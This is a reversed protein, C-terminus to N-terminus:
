SYIVIILLLFSLVSFVRPNRVLRYSGPKVVRGIDIFNLLAQFNGSAPKVFTHVLLFSSLLISELLGKVQLNDSKRFRRGRRSGDPMRVLLTVATDDDSSPEPPLSSEKAALQTELEQCM